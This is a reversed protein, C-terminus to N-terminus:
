RLRAAKNQMIQPAKVEAKDSRGFVPLCYVLVSTIMGETIRKRLKYPLISRLHSLGALRKKLKKLLEEVQKHWKLYPEIQVGILTEVNDESEGLICSDM